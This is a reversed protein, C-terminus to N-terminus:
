IKLIIIITLLLLFLIAIITVQFAIGHIKCYDRLDKEHLYPHSENQYLLMFLLTNLFELDQYFFACGM